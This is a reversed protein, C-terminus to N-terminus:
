PKNTLRNKATIYLAYKLTKVSRFRLKIENPFDQRFLSASYYLTHSARDYKYMICTLRPIGGNNRVLQNHYFHNQIYRKRTSPQVTTSHSADMKQKKNIHTEAIISM